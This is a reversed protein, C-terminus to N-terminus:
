IIAWTNEEDTFVWRYLYNFIFCVICVLGTQRKTWVWPFASTRHARTKMARDKLDSQQKNKEFVFLSNICCRGLLYHQNFLLFRDSFPGKKTHSCLDPRCTLLLTVTIHSSYVWMSVCQERMAAPRSNWCPTELCDTSQHEVSFFVAKNRKGYAWRNYHFGPFVLTHCHKKSPKVFM